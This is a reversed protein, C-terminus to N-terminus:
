IGYGLLIRRMELNDTGNETNRGSFWPKADTWHRQLDKITGIISMHDLYNNQQIGSRGARGFVEVFLRLVAIVRLILSALSFEAFSRAVSSPFDKRTKGAGSDIAPDEFAL